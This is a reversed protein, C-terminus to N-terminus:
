CRDSSVAQYIYLKNLGALAVTNAEPHWSLHLAKKTLDIQNVSLTKDPKKQVGMRPKMSPADKLAETTVTTDTLRNHFIFTNNYSGTVMVTGDKNSACEFKDFICDRDYLDSLHDRLHSHIPITALPRGEMNMDWIRMTLYNRSIIYRGDGTFKADSVSSTIESFFSKNTEDDVEFVRATRDCLSNHRMDVLRIPGRSTSYMFMNCHHPHFSASSIVESL